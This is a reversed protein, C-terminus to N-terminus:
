RRGFIVLVLGIDALLGVLEMGHWFVSSFPLLGIVPDHTSTSM